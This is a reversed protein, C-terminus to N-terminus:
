GSKFPGAAQPVPHISQVQFHQESTQQHHLVVTGELPGESGELPATAFALCVSCGLLAEVHWTSGVHWTSRHRTLGPQPCRAGPTMLQKRRLQSPLRRRGALNSCTGGRGGRDAQRQRRAGNGLLRPHEANTQRAVSPLRGPFAAGGEGARRWAWVGRMISGAPFLCIILFRAPPMRPIPRGEQWRGNSEM